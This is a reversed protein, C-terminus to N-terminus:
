GRMGGSLIVDACETLSSVEPRPGGNRVGDYSLSLARLGAAQAGRVDNEYNDGVMLAEEPGIGCAACVHLYLAPSPNGRGFRGSIFVADFLEEFGSKALKVEQVSASGNSIVGLRYRKEMRLLSERADPYPRHFQSRLEAFLAAGDSAGANVDEAGAERFAGEWSERRFTGTWARFDEPETEFDGYLGEARGIGINNVFGYFPSSRWLRRSVSLLAERLLRSDVGHTKSMRECTLDLAERDPLMEPMLTDDLDFFVIKIGNLEM